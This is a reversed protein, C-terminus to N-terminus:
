GLCMCRADVALSMAVRVSETLQESAHGLLARTGRGWEVDPVTQNYRRVFRERLGAPAALVDFNNNIGHGTLYGADNM